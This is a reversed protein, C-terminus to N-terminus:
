EARKNENDGKIALLFLYTSPLAGTGTIVVCFIAAM